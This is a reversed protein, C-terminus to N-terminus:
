CPDTDLMALTADMVTPAIGVVTVYGNGGLNGVWRVGGGTPADDGASNGRHPM